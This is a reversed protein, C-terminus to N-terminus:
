GILEQETLAVLSVLKVQQAVAPNCHLQFDIELRADDHRQIRALQHAPGPQQRRVVVLRGCPGHFHGAGDRSLYVAGLRQDQGPQPRM